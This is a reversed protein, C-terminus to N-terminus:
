IELEDAGAIELFREVAEEKTHWFPLAVPREGHTEADELHTYYDWNDAWTCCYMGNQEWILAQYTKEGVTVIKVVGHIKEEM